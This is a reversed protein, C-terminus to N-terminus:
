GFAISASSVRAQQVGTECVNRAPDNVSLSLARPKPSSDQAHLGRPLLPEIGQQDLLPEAFRALLNRARNEGALHVDVAVARRFGSGHHRDVGLDADDAGLMRPDATAADLQRVREVREVDVHGVADREVDARGVPPKVSTQSCRPAVCTM